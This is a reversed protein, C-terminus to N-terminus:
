RPTVSEEPFHPLRTHVVKVEGTLLIDKPHAYRITPDLFSYILSSLRYYLELPAVRALSRANEGGEVELEPKSLINSLRM